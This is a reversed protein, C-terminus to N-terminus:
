EKKLQLLMHLLQTLPVHANKLHVCVYLCVHM